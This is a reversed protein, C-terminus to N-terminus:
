FRRVANRRRYHYRRGKSRNGCTAPDCWLRRRDAYVFLQRCGRSDCQRIKKWRDSCLLEVSSEAIPWLPHELAEPDARWDRGFGDESPALYRTELAANVTALDEAAVEKGFALRTLLRMLAVRLEVGRALARAADEPRAGATRLLAEGSTLDLAGM